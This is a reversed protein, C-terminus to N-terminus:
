SSTRKGYFLEEIADIFQLADIVQDLDAKASPVRLSDLYRRCYYIEDRSPKMAIVDQRDQPRHAYFKMALLDLRGIASVTLNEFRAIQQKRSQWGNPPPLANMAQTNLWTPPLGYATAVKAAAALIAQQAQPPCCYVMDCDQTVRHALLQGTLMGASGGILLIEIASNEWQVTKALTELYNLINETNMEM